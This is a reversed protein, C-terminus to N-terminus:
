GLGALPGFNLVQDRVIGAIQIQNDSPRPLDLIWKRSNLLGVGIPLPSFTPLIILGPAFAFCIMKASEIRDQLLVAPHQHGVILIPYSFLNQNRLSELDDGHAVAIDAFHTFKAVTARSGALERMDRQSPDHNGPLLIVQTQAPLLSLLSLFFAVSDAAPQRDHFIDGAFIVRAPNRAVLSKWQRMLASFDPAIGATGALTSEFGLHLDALIATSSSAHWLYRDSTAHIGPLLELTM